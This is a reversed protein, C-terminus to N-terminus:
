RVTEPVVVLAIRLADARSDDDPWVEVQEVLGAGRDTHIDLAALLDPALAEAAPRPAAHDQDALADIDGLLVPVAVDEGRRRLELMVRGVRELLQDAGGDDDRIALQEEAGVVAQPADALLLLAGLGRIAM